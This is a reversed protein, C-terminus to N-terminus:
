RCGRLQVADPPGGTVAIPVDGSDFLLSGPEGGPGDNAFFRVRATEDGQGVPLAYMFEFAVVTRESGALTVEDGHELMTGPNFSQVVDNVTNDYITAASVPAQDLGLWILGFAVLLIGQRHLMAM